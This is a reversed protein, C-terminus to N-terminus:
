RIKVFIEVVKLFFCSYNVYMKLLMENRLDRGIGLIM